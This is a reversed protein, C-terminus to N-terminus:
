MSKECGIERMNTTGYWETMLPWVVMDGRGRMNQEVIGDATQRRQV